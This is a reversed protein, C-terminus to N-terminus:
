LCVGGAGGALVGGGPEKKLQERLKSEQLAPAKNTSHRVKSYDDEKYSDYEEDKKDHSKKKESKSKDSDDAPIYILELSGLLASSTNWAQRDM